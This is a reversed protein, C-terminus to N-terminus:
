CALRDKSIYREIVELCIEREFSVKELDFCGLDKFFNIHFEKEYWKLGSSIAEDHLLEYLDLSELMLVNYLANIEYGIRNKEQLRTRGSNKEIDRLAKRYGEFICTIMEKCNQNTIKLM